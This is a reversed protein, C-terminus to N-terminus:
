ELSSNYSYLVQATTTPWSRLMLNLPTKAWLVCSTVSRLCKCEVTEKRTLSSSLKKFTQQFCLLHIHVSWFPLSFSFFLECTAMFSSLFPTEATYLFIMVMYPLLVVLRSFSKRLLLLISLSYHLCNVQLNIKATDPRFVLDIVFGILSTM